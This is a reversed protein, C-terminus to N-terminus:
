NDRQETDGVPTRVSIRTDKNMEYLLKYVKGRVNNRYLENLGDVLSERDFYKSLDWLQLAIARGHHEALGIVSKIVFLHEQARHGPKTGIQYPSMHSNLNPKAATAVIHGFFKPVDLKTHINRQFDLNERPGRGKYLQIIVTNRWSDPKRERDWIVRFLNYLASKLAAGSKVIFNYKGGPKKKLINLSKNFLEISFKIDNEINEEMRVKHVIQKFELDEFYEPKPDRNTLLEQCYDLSVRKIEEPTCVVKKTKPDILTTAEQGVKKPGVIKEKLNFILASKGKNEKLDKMSKLEEEFKKRQQTLLNAAIDNDIKGVKEILLEENNLIDEYCKVKENQLKELERSPKPKQGVKMKGFAIYKVRNLEKQIKNMMNTTDESSDKAVELLKCNDETLEKFKNWGGEKNTNWLTFKKGATKGVLKLPLNKFRLLMSYNDPYVVKTKSLPRCATTTLNKDIVLKEVYSSLEKSVIVLGLCSKKRLCKPDAPDYRTFPGGVVKKTSNVLEYKETELLKRILRGGFTVKDRHGEIIDGVHKNM